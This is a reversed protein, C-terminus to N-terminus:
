ADALLFFFFFSSLFGFASLFGSWFVSLFTSFFSCFAGFASGFFSGIVKSSYTFFSEDRPRAPESTKVLFRVCFAHSTSNILSDPFSLALAISAESSNYSCCRKTPEEKGESFLSCAGPTARHRCQRMGESQLLERTCAHVVQEAAHM